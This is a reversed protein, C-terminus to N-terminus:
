QDDIRGTFPIDSFKEYWLGERLVLDDIEVGLAFSPFLFVMLLIPALFRKM